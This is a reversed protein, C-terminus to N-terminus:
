PNQTGSSAKECIDLEMGCTAEFRPLLCNRIRCVRKCIVRVDRPDAARLSDFHHICFLTIPNSGKGRRPRTHLCYRVSSRRSTGEPGPPRVASRDHSSSNDGFWSCDATTATQNSVNWPISPHIVHISYFQSLFSAFLIFSLM